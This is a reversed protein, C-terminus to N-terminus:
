KIRVFYPSSTANSGYLAVLKNQIGVYDPTAFTGMEQPSDYSGSHNIIFKGNAFSPTCYNSQGAIKGVYIQHAIWTAGNDKSLWFVPYASVVGGSANPTAVVYGTGDTALRTPTNTGIIPWAVTEWTVGDASRIVSGTSLVAVFRSGTFVVDIINHSTQTIASAGATRDTWVGGLSACTALKANVGTSVGGAVFVGNGYAVANVTTMGITTATSITWSGSPNINAIHAQSGTAGGLSSLALWGVSPAYCIATKAPSTGWSGGVSSLATGNTTYQIPVNAASAAFVAYGNGVAPRINATAQAYSCSAWSDLDTSYSGAGSPIVYKGGVYAYWCLQSGSTTGHQKTNSGFVANFKAQDILNAYDVSYPILNGTQLYQENGNNFLVTNGPADILSGLPVSSGGGSSAGILTLLDSM